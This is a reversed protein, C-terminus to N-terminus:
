LTHSLANKNLYYPLPRTLLHTPLHTVPRTPLSSSTPHVKGMQQLWGVVEKQDVFSPMGKGGGGSGGGGSGGGEGGGGTGGSGGGTGGSGGGTGGGGGGTGGSGDDSRYIHFNDVGIVGWSVDGARLWAFGLLALYLLALCLLAFGLLALYLWAFGLLAFGLM